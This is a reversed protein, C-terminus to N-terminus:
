REGQVFSLHVKIKLKWKACQNNGQNNLLEYNSPMWNTEKEKKKMDLFDSIICIDHFKGITDELLKISETGLNLNEICKSNTEAHPIFNLNTRKWSIYLKESM